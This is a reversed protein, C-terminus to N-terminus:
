SVSVQADTVASNATQKSIDQATPNVIYKGFLSIASTEVIASRIAAQGAASSTSFQAWLEDTTGKPFAFANWDKALQRPNRRGRELFIEAVEGTLEQSAQSVARKSLGGLVRTVGKGALFMAGGVVLGRLTLEGSRGTVFKVIGVTTKVAKVVKTVTTLVRMTTMVVRLALALIAVGPIFFSAVFLVVSLVLLITDLYDLIKSIADVINGIAVAVDGIADKVRDWRSDNVESTAEANEITAVARDAADDRESVLELIRQRATTLTAQHEDARRRALALQTAYEQQQTADTSGAMLDNANHAATQATTLESKASNASELVILSKAQVGTLVQAYGSLAKALETYRSEIKVLDRHVNGAKLRFEDVARSKQGNADGPSEAIRRLRAAGERVSDAVADYHGAAELVRPPDGPIPDHAYLLASWDAPRTTM